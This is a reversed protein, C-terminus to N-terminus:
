CFSSQKKKIQYKIVIYKLLAAPYFAVVFVQTESHKWLQKHQIRLVCQINSHFTARLDNNYHYHHKIAAKMFITYLALKM